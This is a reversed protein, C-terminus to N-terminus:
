SIPRRNFPRSGHTSPAGSVSCFSSLTARAESFSGRGLPNGGSQQGRFAVADQSAAVAIREALDIQDCNSATTKREDLDLTSRCQRISFRRQRGELGAADAAGGVIPEIAIGGKSVVLDAEIGHENCRAVPGAM